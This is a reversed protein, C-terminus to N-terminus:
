SNAIMNAETAPCSVKSNPMPPVFGQIKWLDRRTEEVSYEWDYGKDAVHPKLADDVRGLFRDRIEDNPSLASMLDVDNDYRLFSVYLTRAINQITVRIFPKSSDPGPKNAESHPSPRAVGGIYYSSAEIPQFLVNVYFPPLGASKTGSYIATIDAALSQKSDPTTFTSPPHYIIWLPM